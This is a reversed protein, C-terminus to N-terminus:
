KEPSASWISVRGTDTETALRHTLSDFAITATSNPNYSFRLLERGSELHWVRLTGDSGKSAIRHGNPSFKVEFVSGDHGEIKRLLEGALLDWIEIIPGTGVALLRDDPSFATCSGTFNGSAQRKGFVRVLQCTETSYLSVTGEVGGDCAYQKGTSNFAISNVFKKHLTDKHILEWTRTDWVSFSGLTDAVFLLEGNSSFSVNKVIQNHIDSSFIRKGSSVDWVSIQGDGGGSLMSGDPHFALSMWGAAGYILKSDSAVKANAEPESLDWIKVSSDTASGGTALLKGENGFAISHIWRSSAEIVQAAQDILRWKRITGDRSVSEVLKDVEIFCVSVIEDVHGRFRLEEIGSITNWIRVTRDASGSVLQMGDSSFAICSVVGDHQFRKLEEGSKADWLRITHDYSATAIQNSAPHFKFDLIDDSHGNLEALRDGSEKDWIRLVHHGIGESPGAITRRTKSDQKFVKEVSGDDRDLWFAWTEANKAVLRGDKSSRVNTIMESIDYRVCDSSKFGLLKEGSITSWVESFNVLSTNSHSNWGYSVVIRKGDPSFSISKVQTGKSEAKADLPMTVLLDGTASDWLRVTGDRAGTAFRKHDPDNAHATLAPVIRIERNTTAILRNWYHWEFGRIDSDEYRKLITKIQNINSDNWNQEAILMDASYANQHSVVFNAKAEAARATAEAAKQEARLAEKNAREAHRDSETRLRKQGIAALPGGVGLAFALLVAFLIASAAAPRRKCWRAMRETAGIPRALIPRGNLFRELEDSLESANQYRREADKELCKLCITELDLPINSDLTRPTVPESDTVQKLTDLFNAAQFPPRGTITCYLIAGLSYVDALTGIKDTQGRAQEPPMYSPTGMVAGTRTLDSDGKVMKALGFDTVRPEGNCDVLVNAPKLDRHIVDRSHAYAVAVAIKRCIDAADRAPMPGASLKSQLSAGDIFGMSFYHQGDHEGIEYIPVIGPHDLNAASEAEAQFRQVLEDGALEGALIMKIAVIRNLKIQRAKYVVGMGGRAIEQLLEYEGFYLVRVGGDLSNAAEELSTRSGSEAPLTQLSVVQGSLNGDSSSSQEFSDKPEESPEVSKRRIEHLAEKIADRFCPFRDEYDTVAPPSSEHQRWRLEIQLLERLLKSQDEAGVRQLFDDINPPTGTMWASEFEDCLSYIRSENSSFSM